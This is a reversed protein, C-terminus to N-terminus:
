GEKGATKEPIIHHGPRVKGDRVLRMVAEGIETRHTHHLLHGAGKLEILEVDPRAAFFPLANWKISVTRDRNGHIIMLREQTGPMTDFHQQMDALHHKLGMAYVANTIFARPQLILAIAADRVYGDPATTPYASADAGAQLQTRGYKGLVAHAFVPGIVPM